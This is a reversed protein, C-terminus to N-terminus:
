PKVKDREECGEEVIGPTFNWRFGSREADDCLQITDVLESQKLRAVETSMIKIQELVDSRTVELVKCGVTPYSLIRVGKITYTNKCERQVSKGCDERNRQANEAITKIMYNEPFQKLLNNIKETSDDSLKNNICNSRIEEITFSPLYSNKVWLDFDGKHPSYGIASSVFRTTGIEAIASCAEYKLMVFEALQKYLPDNMDVTESESSFFNDGVFTDTASHILQESVTYDTHLRKITLKRDANTSFRQACSEIWAKSEDNPNLAWGSPTELLVNAPSAKEFSVLFSGMFKTFSSKTVMMDEIKSHVKSHLFDVYEVTVLEPFRNIFDKAVSEREQSLRKYDEKLYFENGHKKILANRKNDLYTIKAFGAVVADANNKLSVAREFTTKHLVTWSAIHQSEEQAGRLPSTGFAILATLCLMVFAGSHNKNDRIITM